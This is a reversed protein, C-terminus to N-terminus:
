FSDVFICAISLYNFLSTHTYLLLIRIRPPPSSVVEAAAAAAARNQENKNSNGGSVVGNPADKVALSRALSRAAAAFWGDATRQYSNETVAAAM